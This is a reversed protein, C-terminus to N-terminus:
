DLLGQRLATSIAATRNDVALKTYINKLHFKVTNESVDLAQAISKNPQGQALLSLVQTEKASLPMKPRVPHARWGRLRTLILAMAPLADPCMELAPLLWPGVELLLGPLAQETVPALAHMVAHPTISVQAKCGAALAMLQLRWGPLQLGHGAFYAGERRLLGLAAQSAGTAIQLRALALTAAEHSRWDHPARVQGELDAELAEKRAQLLQGCQVLADVRWACVLRSLRQWHRTTALVQTHELEFLAPELGRTRMTTRWTVEATAAVVDLWGDAHELAAWGDKLWPGTEAWSGQWYCHQAKVCGLLAALSSEGGFHQHVFALADDILQRDEQVNGSLALAQAEHCRCYSEGRLSAILRMKIHAARISELSAAMEGRALLALADVCELTAEALTHEPYDCPSQPQAPCDYDFHDAYANSLSRIVHLDRLLRPVGNLTNEALQLMQACLAHEGSKAHLYAQLLLLDPATLRTQEDFQQILSQAYRIGHRLVLAWGGARVVLRIALETDKAKLAHAVAQVWDTAHALWQAAARHIHRAQVPNVKPALFDRLLGHYRFWQREADLPVLLADLHGLHELLPASDDRGRVADALEANFRELLSTEMLFAQSETSLSVLIQEALYAAVDTVRGCFAPLGYLCGDSSARWLRALQVAVAWGETTEHLRHLEEPEVEAGLIHRTEELSLSLDRAALEYVWGNAKWCALPWAPRTRSAVVWQLWPSAQEILDQMVHDVALPTVVHYDDIMLTVPRKAQALVQVLATITRQPQADLAHSEALRSLHGLKLGARALALILYALFRNPEADAEDLSLWAVAPAPAPSDKQLAQHWQMLLTTKGYGAPAVLLLLPVRGQKRLTLLLDERVVSTLLTKPPSLKGVWRWASSSGTASKHSM